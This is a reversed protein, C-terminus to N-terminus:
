RSFTFLDQLLHSVLDIRWKIDQSKKNTYQKSVVQHESSKREKDTFLLVEFYPFVIWRTFFILASVYYKNHANSQISARYTKSKKTRLM